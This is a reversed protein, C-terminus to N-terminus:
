AAAESEETEPLKYITVDMDDFYTCIMNYVIKWNGKQLVVDSNIHFRWLNITTSTRIQNFANTLATYNTFTKGATRGYDLQGFVNAIIKNPVVPIFQVKGLLDFPTSKRCFEHYETKVEPWRTYIAKALGSGMASRCNVQQVIIDEAANLLDGVVIKVM